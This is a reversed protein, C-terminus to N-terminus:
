DNEEIRKIEDPGYGQSALFARATEKSMGGMIAVFVDSMRLTKIAVRRQNLDIPNESLPKKTM